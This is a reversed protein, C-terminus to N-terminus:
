ENLAADAKAARLRSKAGDHSRELERLKAPDTPRGGYRKAKYLELRERRYRAEQRLEELRAQERSLM